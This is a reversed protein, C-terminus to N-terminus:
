RQLGVSFSFVQTDDTDAKKVPFAFDLAIPAPGMAPVTIRLGLGPAVRFNNLAVNQNVTGFDCFAVGHIMDDATLPFLYEVTNLFEFDGGVQVNQVVPSAGRFDFGRLSSFGGAYFTDYIPTENGTFGVKTALTLVHRGSHDPRENLLVYQRADFIARPYQFSGVVEELEMQLFHGETALFASDRTDNAVTWKFGHVANHGLVEALQPQAPNSPNTVLVDEGRYAIGTSLDNEVWQYGIGVRGGVRQEDWDRYKRTFYSGSLNLSYPSDMLYPESFSVLYRQVETGPAAEIRLRQGGGRWAKGSVFDEWSTPPRTIDFSQEDLLIQGVLGADSNVAVGLMLRGTQAESLVVDMDVAPDTSMPTFSDTPYPSTPLPPVPVIRQDPGLPPGFVPAPGSQPAPAYQYQPAGQPAPLTQVSPAATMPPPGFAPTLGQPAAVTPGTSNYQPPLQPETIAAPRVAYPNSGVAIADPGTGGVAQGGYSPDAYQGTATAPQYPSQTRVVLRQYPSANNTPASANAPYPATPYTPANNAPPAAPYQSYPASPEDYPPRRVEYRKEEVRNGDPKTEPAAPVELNEVYMNIELQDEAPVFGAPTEVKYITQPKPQAPAISSQPPAILAPGAPPTTNPVAAPLDPASLLEVGQGKDPSQGRFGGGGKAMETKSGVEPIHYTIKPMVGHVPDSMFLGSAQLRRESSHIERIDAIEGSKISLRNLATQIKTHPNDGAIHVFINGIRWRKGEDIHYMLKLRGQEELFIPEAKIDAFVYGQSGYLEKLWAVDANMKDQVFPRPGPPLPRIYHYAKELTPEQTSDPKLEVGSALSDSSFLRNGIFAVSEVQYRPGEHIVFRLTLWKNQEDFELQRGIKADFYGFSRYYATLKTVDGDIQERDVYGKFLYAIPPKSDIKTKLRSTSVFENGVFEVKWIKQALGENIVFVIGHDTSKDGELLSIQVNNFGNRHYLEVLRRRAEQVAYPDVPGGVKLDTEKALKKTRLGYNGLYEVYRVVPREVVKFIVVRGGPVQEYAPQVDVFWGRAALKRVDRQVLAPDFPRGIRTQLQNLIQSTPITSNGVIRIDSVTENTASLSPGSTDRDNQKKGFMSTPLSPMGGGGMGQALSWAPISAATAVLM